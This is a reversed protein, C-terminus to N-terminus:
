VSPVYKKKEFKKSQPNMTVEKEGVKTEHFVMAEDRSGRM